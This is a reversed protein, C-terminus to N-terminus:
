LKTKEDFCLKIFEKASASFKNQIKSSYNSFLKDFDRKELFNFNTCSTVDSASLLTM